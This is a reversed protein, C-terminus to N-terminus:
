GFLVTGNGERFPFPVTSWCRFGGAIIKILHGDIIAVVRVQTCAMSSAILCICALL